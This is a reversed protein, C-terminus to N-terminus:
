REDAAAALGLREALAADEAALARLQALADAGAPASEPAGWRRRSEYRRVGQPDGHLLVCHDFGPSPECREVRIAAERGDQLLRLTAQSPDDGPEWEFVDHGGRLLSGRYFSGYLPAGERPRSVVFAAFPERPGKPLADVWLRDGLQVEGGGGCAGALGTLLCLSALTASRAIRKM